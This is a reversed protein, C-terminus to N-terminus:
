NSNKSDYINNELTFGDKTIKDDFEVPQRIRIRDKVWMVLAKLRQKQVTSVIIPFPRGSAGSSRKAYSTCADRVDDEGMCKLGDLGESMLDAVIAKQQDADTIGILNIIGENSLAPM